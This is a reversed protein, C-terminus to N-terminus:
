PCGWARSAGNFCAQFRAFDNLDVDSDDDLDTIYCNETAPDRSSGNFCVQFVAFDSVDCDGDRDFDGHNAAYLADLAGLVNLKGWGWSANPVSGTSADATATARLIERARLMTLAPDMQLMLAVAGVVVPASGSTAGQRGYWGGGGQVLNFRFTAWYSDRGYAAFLNHGPATLDIGPLRGDRTPGGSSYAWLEGALGEDDVYWHFGDIDDYETRVVHAGVVLASRTSAYDTLRGGVRHDEFRIYESGPHYLDFRGTSQVAAQIHVTGGGPHGEIYIYVAYDGSTSNWEYFQTGPAFQEIWIGSAYAYGGPPVPGVLAGDDTGLFVWAPTYGTYWLMLVTAASGAKRYRVSTGTIDDFRGGAHNALGGEDGSPSVYIRGPRRQGFVEDIKRSPLSTGDIPGWQLGSNIIAVCPRGLEVIKEDLWDLATHICGQFFSEAPQDDHAPAGESTLKVIILDAEPAIGRFRGDAWARGNGAAIGATVTGHGVADRTPLDTQTALAANIDAESYEVPPPDYPSCPDPGSQSMDLLYKIRTTGDPKIFDPHRWDIGRDLIAVLVGAGTLGYKAVAADTGTQQRVLDMAPSVGPGFVCAMSVSLISITSGKM